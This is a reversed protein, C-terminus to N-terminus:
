KGDAVKIKFGADRASRLINDSPGGNVHVPPLQTQKPAASTASPQVDATSSHDSQTSDAPASQSAAPKSQTQPAEKPADAQQARNVNGAALSALIFLVAHRAQQPM